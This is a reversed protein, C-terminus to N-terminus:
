QWWTGENWHWTGEPHPLRACRAPQPGQMPEGYPVLLPHVPVGNAWAERVALAALHRSPELPFLVAGCVPPATLTWRVSAEAARYDFDTLRRLPDGHYEVPEM